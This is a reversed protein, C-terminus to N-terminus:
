VIQWGMLSFTDTIDTKSGVNRIVERKGSTTETSISNDATNVSETKEDTLIEKSAANQAGQKPWM